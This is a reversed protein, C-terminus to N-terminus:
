VIPIRAPAPCKREKKVISRLPPDKETANRFIEAQIINQQHHQLKVEVKEEDLNKMGYLSHKLSVMRATGGDVLALGFGVERLM